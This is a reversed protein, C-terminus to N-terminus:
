AKKHTIKAQIFHLSSDLTIPNPIYGSILNSNLNYTELLQM